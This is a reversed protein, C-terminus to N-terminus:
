RMLMWLIVKEPMEAQQKEYIHRSHTRAASLACINSYFVGRNLGLAATTDIYHGM